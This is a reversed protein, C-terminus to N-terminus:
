SVYHFFRGVVRCKNKHGNYPVEIIQSVLLALLPEHPHNSTFWQSFFDQHVQTEHGIKWHCKNHHLNENHAINTVPDNQTHGM